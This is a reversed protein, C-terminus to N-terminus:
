RTIDVKKFTVKKKINNKRVANNSAEEEAKKLAKVIVEVRGGKDFRANIHKRLEKIKDRLMDKNWIEHEPTHM